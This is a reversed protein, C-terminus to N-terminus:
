SKVELQEVIAKLRAAEEPAIEKGSLFAALFASGSGDFLKDVLEGAEYQQVQDKTILAKCTFDTGYREVAGKDILKKIVTYTTTRSWGTQEKLLKVLQTATTDGNDWLADLVKLESDYVRM